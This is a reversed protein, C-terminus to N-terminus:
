VSRFVGVFPALLAPDDLVADVRALEGSLVRLGAPLLVEFLSGSPALRVLM